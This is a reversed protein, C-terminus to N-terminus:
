ATCQLKLNSFANFHRGDVLITSTKSREGACYSGVCYMGEVRSFATDVLECALVQEDEPELRGIRNHELADDPDWGPNAYLHEKITRRSYVRLPCIEKRGRRLPLYPSQAYFHDNDPTSFDTLTTFQKKAKRQLRIELVENPTRGDPQSARM